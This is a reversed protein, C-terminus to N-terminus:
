CGITNMTNAVSLIRDTLSENTDAFRLRVTTGNDEYVYPNEMQELYSKIREKKPLSSDINLDNIDKIFGM